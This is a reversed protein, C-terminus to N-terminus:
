SLVYGHRVANKANHSRRYRRTAGSARGLRADNEVFGRSLTTRHIPFVRRPLVGDISDIRRLGSRETSLNTGPQSQGVNLSTRGPM